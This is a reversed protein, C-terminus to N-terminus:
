PDADDTPVNVTSAAPRSVAAPEEVTAIAEEATEPSAALAVVSVVFAAFM